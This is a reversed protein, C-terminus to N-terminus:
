GKQNAPRWPELRRQLPHLIGHEMILLCFLVVLIWAFAQATNLTVRAAGLGAGIGLNTGAMLEAMVVVKWALGLGSLMAPFLYSLLHPLYLETILFRKPTRFVRAMEVLTPDVAMTGAVTATFIIPVVAVSITFIPTWSGSGFWLLAVVILAIPPIGQLLTVLPALALRVPPILGALLGFSAGILLSLAFGTLTRVLTIQVAQLVAGERLLGLLAEWTELPTPLVYPPYRLAALHWAVLFLAIGLLNIWRTTFRQTM